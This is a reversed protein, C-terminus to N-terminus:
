SSFFPLFPLFSIPPTHSPPTPSPPPIPPDWAFAFFFSPLPMRGNSEYLHSLLFYLPFPLDDPIDFTV